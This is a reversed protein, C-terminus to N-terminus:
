LGLIAVDHLDGPFDRDVVADIGALEAGIGLLEVSVIARCPEFIRLPEEDLKLLVLTDVCDESM